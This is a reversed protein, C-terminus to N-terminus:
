YRKYYAAIVDSKMNTIYIEASIYVMAFKKVGSRGTGATKLASNTHPDIYFDKSSRNKKLGPIREAM